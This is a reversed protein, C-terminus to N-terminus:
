ALAKSLAVRMEEVPASKGTWIEWAKIGQHLLMGKGDITKLGISKAQKLFETEKYIMDVINQLAQKCQMVFDDTEFQSQNNWGIMGALYIQRGRTEIGNSYGKPLIWGEPQLINRM